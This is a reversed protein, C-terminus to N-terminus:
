HEYMGDLTEVAQEQRKVAAVLGVLLEVGVNGVVDLEVEVVTEVVGVVELVVLELAGDEVLEVELELVVVDLELVGHVAVAKECIAGATADQVAMVKSPMAAGVFLVMSREFSFALETTVKAPRVVKANVLELVKLGICNPPAFTVMVDAGPAIM